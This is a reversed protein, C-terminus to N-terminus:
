LPNEPKEGKISAVEEQLREECFAAAFKDAKKIDPLYCPLELGVDVRAFEFGDGLKLTIGYSRRVIAPTTKFKKVEATEVRDTICTEKGNGAKYRHAVTIIVPREIVEEDEVASQEEQQETM